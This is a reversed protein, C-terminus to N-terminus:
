QQGAFAGDPGFRHGASRGVFLLRCRPLGASNPTGEARFGAPVLGPLLPLAVAPIGQRINEPFGFLFQHRCSARGTSLGAARCRCGASQLAAYVYDPKFCKWGVQRHYCCRCHGHPLHPLGHCGRVSRPLSRGDSLLHASGSGGSVVGDSVAAVMRAM